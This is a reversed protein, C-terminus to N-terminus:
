SSINCLCKSGTTLYEIISSPLGPTSNFFLPLGHSPILGLGEAYDNLASVQFWYAVMGVFTFFLIYKVKLTNLFKSNTKVNGSIDM